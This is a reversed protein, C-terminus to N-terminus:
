NKRNKWDCYDCTMDDVLPMSCNPCKDCKVM